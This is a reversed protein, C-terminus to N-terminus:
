VADRRERRRRLLARVGIMLGLWALVAAVVVIMDVLDPQVILEGLRGGVITFAVVLPLFGIASGGLYPWFPLRLVGAVLNIASNHAIPTLRVIAVTATSHRDLIAKAPAFRTEVWQSLGLVGFFGGLAYGVMAALLAGGMAYALAPWAPFVFGLAAVIPTLPVFALVAVVVAALTVAPTWPQRRLEELLAIVQDREALRALPTAEWLAFLGAVFALAILLSLPRRWGFYRPDLARLTRRPPSLRPLPM